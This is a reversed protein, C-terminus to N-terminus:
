FIEKEMSDYKKKTIPKGIELEERMDNLEGLTLYGVKVSSFFGCHYCDCSAHPFPKHDESVSMESNCNPCSSGYSHGSM